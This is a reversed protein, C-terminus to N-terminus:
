EIGEIDRLALDLFQKLPMDLAKLIRVLQPLEPSREGNEFRQITSIGMGTRARLEERSVKREGRLGRLKDGIAKNIAKGLTENDM